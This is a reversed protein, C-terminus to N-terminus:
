RRHTAALCKRLADPDPPVLILHVHNPMLVWSWVEVKAAAAQERLLDLYLRYDANRFFTQARGNGRQTVHHPLGPFVARALRAM